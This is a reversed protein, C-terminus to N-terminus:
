GSRQLLFNLLISYGSLQIFNLIWEACDFCGLWMSRWQLCLLYSFAHVNCGTTPSHLWFALLLYTFLSKSVELYAKQGSIPRRLGMHSTNTWFSFSPLASKFIPVPNPDVGDLGTGDGHGTGTRFM